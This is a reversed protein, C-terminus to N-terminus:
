SVNAFSHIPLCTLEWLGRNDFDEYDFVQLTKNYM